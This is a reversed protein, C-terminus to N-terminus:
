RQRTPSVNQIKDVQEVLLDFDYIVKDRIRTTRVATLTAKEFLSALRSIRTRYISRGNILIAGPLKDDRYMKHIWLSNLDEVGNAFYHL